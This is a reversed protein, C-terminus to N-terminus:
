AGFLKTYDQEGFQPVQWPGTGVARFQGAREYFLETRFRPNDLAFRAAFRETLDRLTGPDGTRRESALIDAIDEYHRQTYM